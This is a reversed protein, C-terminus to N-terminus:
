GEDRGEGELWLQRFTRGEPAPLDRASTWAAALPLRTLRGRRRGLRALLRAGLGTVRHYLPPHRVLAAWVALAWRARKHGLRERHQRVRHQRLLSPLPISM